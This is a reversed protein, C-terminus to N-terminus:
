EESKPRYRDLIESSVWFFADTGGKEDIFRNFLLYEGDRTVYSFTVTHGNNISEDLHQPTSWTGDSDRFSIYLDTESSKGGPRCSGFLLYSEDPAIFPYSECTPGNIEEGLTDVPQYQGDKFESRCVLKDWTEGKPGPVIFYVTGSETVTPQSESAESNPPSGANVPASWLSDTKEIYWIDLGGFGGPLNSAFYLRRGDPSFCPNMILYDEMMPPDEPAIWRGDKECAYLTKPREGRKISMWYIERGDPAVTPFCHEINGIPIIGSAFRVPATGPPTQGLYPGSLNPFAIEDVRSDQSRTAPSLGFALLLIFIMIVRVKLLM